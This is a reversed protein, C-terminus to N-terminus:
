PFVVIRRFEGTGILSNLLFPLENLLANHFLDQSIPANNHIDHIQWDVVLPRSGSRSSQCIWCFDIM